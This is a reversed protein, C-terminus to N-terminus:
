GNGPEGTSSTLRDRMTRLLAADTARRQEPSPANASEAQARGDVQAMLEFALRVAKPDGNAAQNAVQKAAAELKTVSRRRGHETITVKENLASAIVSAVNKSGKPRGAPNGSQGLKFRHERPPQNKGVRYDSPKSM